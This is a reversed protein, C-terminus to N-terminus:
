GKYYVQAITTAVFPNTEEGFGSTPEELITNKNLVADFVITNYTGPDLAAEVLAALSLADEAVPQVSKITVMCSKLPSEGITLTMHDTVTYVVSPFSAFQNRSGYFINADPIDVNPISQLMTRIAQHISM